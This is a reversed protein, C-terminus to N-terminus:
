PTVRMVLLAMDDRSGGRRRRLVERELLEAVQGADLGVCKSLATALRREGEMPGASPLDTVGDTYMIMTDGPGLELRRDFVNPDPFLGLLTGARGALEQTGDARLIIPLPHGGCCITLRALGPKPRLRTHAVTLFTGEPTQRRVAENLTMLIKSPTREQMAATRLTYRALGMVSAAV